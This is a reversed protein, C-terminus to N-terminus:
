SNISISLSELGRLIINPRYRVQEDALSFSSTADLVERLAISSELRALPAGLCHHMGFGFGLHPNVERHFDLETPTSFVEPDRNAAGILVFVFSGKDLM